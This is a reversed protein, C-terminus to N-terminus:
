MTKIVYIFFLVLVVIWIWSMESAEKERGEDTEPVAPLESAEVLVDPQFASLTGLLPEPDNRGAPLPM